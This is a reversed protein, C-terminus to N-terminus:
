FVRDPRAIDNDSAGSGPSEKQFLTPYSRACEDGGDTCIVLVFLLQFRTQQKLAFCYYVHHFLGSRDSLQVVSDIRTDHGSIINM